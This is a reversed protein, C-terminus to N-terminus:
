TFCKRIRSKFRSVGTVKCSTKDVNGLFNDNALRVASCFFANPYVIEVVSVFRDFFEFVSKRSSNEDVGNGIGRIPFNQCLASIHERRSLCLLDDACTNRSNMDTRDEFAFATVSYASFAVTGVKSGSFENGLAFSDAYHSRLGYALGTCLKRHSREVQATYCSGINCLTKGTNLFYEFCTARLFRSSKAFIGTRDLYLVGLTGLVYYNRFVVARFM